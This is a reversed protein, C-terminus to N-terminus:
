NRGGIKIGVRDEFERRFMFEQWAGRIEPGAGGFLAEPVLYQPDDILKHANSTWNRSDMFNLIIATDETSMSQETLQTRLATMIQDNIERAKRDAPAERVMYDGPMPATRRTRGTVRDALATENYFGEPKAARHRLKQKAQYDTWGIM